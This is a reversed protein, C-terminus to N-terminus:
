GLSAIVVIECILAFGEKMFGDLAADSEEIRSLDITWEGVFVQHSFRKFRQAALYHDGGLETEFV